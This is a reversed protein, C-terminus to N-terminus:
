LSKRQRHFTAQKRNKNSRQWKSGRFNNGLPFIMHMANADSQMCHQGITAWIEYFSILLVRFKYTTVRGELIFRTSKIGKMRRICLMTTLMLSRERVSLGSMSMSRLLRMWSAQYASIFARQMEMHRVFYPMSAETIPLVREGAKDDCTGKVEAMDEITVTGKPLRYPLQEVVSLTGNEIDVNRWRM